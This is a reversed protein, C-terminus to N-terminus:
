FLKPLRPFLSLSLSLSLSFFFSSLFWSSAGLYIHRSCTTTNCAMHCHTHRTNGEYIYNIGGTVLSMLMQAMALSSATGAYGKEGQPQLYRKNMFLTVMSVAYWSCLLFPIVRGAGPGRQLQAQTNLTKAIAGSTVTACNGGHQKTNPLATSERLSAVDTGSFGTFKQTTPESSHASQRMRERLSHVTFKCMTDQSTACFGKFRNLALCNPPHRATAFTRAVLVRM